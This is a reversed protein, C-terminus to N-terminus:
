WFDINRQTIEHHQQMLRKYLGEELTYGTIKITQRNANKNTIPLLVCSVNLGDKQMAHTRNTFSNESLDDIVVEFTRKSDDKIIHWSRTYM